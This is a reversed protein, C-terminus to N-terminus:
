AESGAIFEVVRLWVRRFEPTTFNSRTSLWDYQRDSGESPNDDGYHGIIDLHDAQALAICHGWPQSLTPVIGDNDMSDCIKGFAKSMERKLPGQAEPFEYGSALRSLSYYFAHQAQAAPNIGIEFSGSLSPKHARTVISGYRVGERNGAAANFIDMTEVTLQTLLSQDREVETLLEVVQDLREENFDSLLQRYLQGALTGTTRDTSAAVAFLGAAKTWASLPLEGHRLATMTLASLIQLLKRGMVSTFYSAIPAGRHPTAISICSRVRRAYSEVNIKTELDVAPTMLLRADLGGTSHGILHINSKPGPKAEAIAELLCRTRTRLSATPLSKVCHIEAPMGADDLLAVLQRYAPGWYAFDGLNAFGFFGPILFIHRKM